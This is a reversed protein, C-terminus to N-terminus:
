HSLKIIFQGSTFPFHQPPTFLLTSKVASMVYKAKYDASSMCKSASIGRTRFRVVMYSHQNRFHCELLHNTTSWWHYFLFKNERRLMRLPQLLEQQCEQCTLSERHESTVVTFLYSSYWMGESHMSRITTKFRSKIYRDGQVVIFIYM